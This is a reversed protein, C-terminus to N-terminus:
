FGKPFSEKLRDFGSAILMRIAEQDSSLNFREKTARIAWLSKEDWPGQSPMPTSPGQASAGMWPNQGPPSSVASMTEGKFDSVSPSPATEAAAQPATKPHPPAVAESTEFQKMGHALNRLDSKFSEVSIVDELKPQNEDLLSLTPSGFKKSHIYAQVLNDATMVRDKIHQPQTKLWEFAHSLTERTYAQPPVSTKSIM